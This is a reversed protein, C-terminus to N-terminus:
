FFDTSFPAMEYFFKIKKKRMFAVRPERLLYAYARGETQLSHAARMDDAAM